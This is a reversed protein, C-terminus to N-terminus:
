LARGGGRCPVLQYQFVLHDESTWPVERHDAPNLDAEVVRQIQATGMDDVHKRQITPIHRSVEGRMGLVDRGQNVLGNHDESVDVGVACRRTLGRLGGHLEPCGDVLKGVAGGETGDGDSPVLAYVERGESPALEDDGEVDRVREGGSLPHGEGCGRGLTAGRATGCGRLGVIKEAM